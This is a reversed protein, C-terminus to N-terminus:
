KEIYNSIIYDVIERIGLSLETNRELEEILKGRDIAVRINPDFPLQFGRRIDYQTLLKNLTSDGFLKIRISNPCVYYSMNEILAIVDIGAKKSFTIAKKVVREALRGPSSVILGVKNQPLIQSLTILEDGTGPPLDYVIVDLDDINLLSLTEIIFRSRMVGEWLLAVKPSSMFQEVSFFYFNQIKEPPYLHGTKQSILIEANLAGLLYPISSGTEDADYLLTKYGKRSLFFSIAASLFSKGVGGKGSYVLINKRIRSTKEFIKKVLEDYSQVKYNSEVSMRLNPRQDIM